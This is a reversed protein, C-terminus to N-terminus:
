RDHLQPAMGRQILAEIRRNADDVVVGAPGVLRALLQTADRLRETRDGHSQLV